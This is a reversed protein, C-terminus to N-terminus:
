ARPVRLWKNFFAITRSWADEAAAANYNAGTDNYFAHGVGEYISMGFVKQRQIMGDAVPLMRQTLARDREAYIALVPTSLRDLDELVPPAGYFPVAAATEPMNVAFDWTNQGGACFGVIGIRNFIIWNLHKLYDLGAVLDIRRDYQNTRGYAATQQAPDTFQHTGGQRSLLDVALGIFGAKAVRRTVDRTHDLLGRNEHVVLVGPQLEQYAKKPIAVYGYMVGGDGTFTIDRADIDPDDAAVRVGVPVASPQQAQLEEFGSLAALAAAATGTHRMVRRVLERRGFAGDVYLHVLSAIPDNNEYM